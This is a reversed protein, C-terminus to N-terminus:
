YDTYGATDLWNHAVAVAHDAHLALPGLSVRRDTREALLAAEADTFARHDSLVLTPDTPPDRDAAPTGDAALVVLPGDCRDLATSLDRRAVAIGPAVTAAVDGVADGAATVADRIRAATSREDPNLGRVDGGDFTVTLEDRVVLHVRTDTRIDHSLLLGATVCRALLDLRGAGPLDALSVDADLPAEHGLVVVDRM